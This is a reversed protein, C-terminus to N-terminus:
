CDVGALLGFSSCSPPCLLWPLYVNKYFALTCPAGAPKQFNYWANPAQCIHFFGCLLINAATFNTIFHHKLTVGLHEFTAVPFHSNTFGLTPGGGRCWVYPNIQKWHLPAFLWDPDIFKTADTMRKTMRVYFPQRFVRLTMIVGPVM